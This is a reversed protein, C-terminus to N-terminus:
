HQGSKRDNPREESTASQHSSQVTEENAKRLPNPRLFSCTDGTLKIPAVNIEHLSNKALLVNFEGIQKEMDKWAAITHNLDTCDKQWTAIQTPTPAMDLGVQMMSVMTNYADNLSMFSEIAKPDPAVRRAGGGFGGPTMLEVSKPSAPMSHRPRHTWIPLCPAKGSRTLSPRVASVEDHGEFSQEMGRVSLLTLEGQQRLSALLAPSDGVRPDNIVTVNRTYVKGDVTLKLHYVGPIVQPGHPGPTTSGEVMNM